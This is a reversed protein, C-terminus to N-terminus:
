KGARLRSLADMVLHLLQDPRNTIGFAGAPVGADPIMHSVYFIVPQHFDAATLRPLMALGAAQPELGPLDRRIDSLIIQFPQLQEAGSRLARLAEDTTVAFTIMCGFSRLMRSENRDNSPTDDVWLIEAGEFLARNANARDLATKRDAVPIDVSVGTTKNALEISRIAADLATGGSLALTVGFAEFSSLRTVAAIMPTRLLWVVYFALLAWLATTLAGVVQAIAEGSM